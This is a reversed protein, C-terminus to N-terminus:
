KERERYKEKREREFKRWQESQEETLKENRKTRKGYVENRSKKFILSKRKKAKRRKNEKQFNGRKQKM